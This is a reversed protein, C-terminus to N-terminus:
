GGDIQRYEAAPYIHVPGPFLHIFRECVCSHSFQSEPRAIGKRPINTEFKETNTRQLAHNQNGSFSYIPSIPIKTATHLKPSVIKMEIKSIFLHHSLMLCDM